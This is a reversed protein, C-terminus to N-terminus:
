SAGRPRDIWHRVQQFPYAPLPVRRGAAPEPLIGDSVWAAADGAPASADLQGGRLGDVAEALTRALVARRLAFVPRGVTLTYAVDM